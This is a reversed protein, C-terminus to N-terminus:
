ANILDKVDQVTIKGGQGTGTIEALDLGNRIAIKHASPTINPKGEPVAEIIKAFGHDQLYEAIEQTVKTERGPAFYEENTAWGRYGSIFEVKVM